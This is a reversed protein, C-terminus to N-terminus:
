QPRFREFMSRTLVRYFPQSVHCMYNTDTDFVSSWTRPRKVYRADHCPTPTRRRIHITDTSSNATADRHSDKAHSFVLEVLLCTTASVPMRSDLSLVTRAPADVGFLRDNYHYLVWLFWLVLTITALDWLISM